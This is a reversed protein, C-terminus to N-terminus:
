ISGLRMAGTMPREGINRSPQSAAHRLTIAPAQFVRRPVPFVARPTEIIRQNPCVLVLELDSDLKFKGELFYFRTLDPM